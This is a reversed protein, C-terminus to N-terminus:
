TATTMQHSAENKDTFRFDGGNFSERRRYYRIQRIDRLPM